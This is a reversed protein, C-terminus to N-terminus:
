SSTARERNLGSSTWFTQNGLASKTADLITDYNYVAEGHDLHFLIAKRRVKKAVIGSVLMRATMEIDELAWGQLGEDFGNIREIDEKWFAMNCGLALNALQLATVDKLAYIRPAELPNRIAYYRKRLRKFLIGPIVNKLDPRFRGTYAEIVHVRDGLVIHNKESLHLHDTLFNRHPICDGDIFIIYDGSAERIGMNRAKSVQWGEDPQWLHRLTVPFGAQLSEVMSRTDQGSGDDCILVEFPLVTMARIGLLVQQLQVPKNYTTICLSTKM